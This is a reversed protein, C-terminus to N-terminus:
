HSLNSIEDVIQTVSKDDVIIKFPAQEYYFNREFLHKRIFDILEADNKLHNILPRKSIESILRTTLTDISAKLYIVFNDTTTIIENMNDGYCPTGGGLSVVTRELSLVDKLFLREQNRFYIEGKTKFIESISLGLQNEIYDDFDVFSFELKQALLKGVVSKGCGMYGLLFVSM